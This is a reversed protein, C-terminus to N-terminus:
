DDTITDENADCLSTSGYCYQYLEFKMRQIASQGEGVMRRTFSRGGISYSTIQNAELAAQQPLAAIYQDLLYTAEAKVLADSITGIRAVWANKLDEIAAM